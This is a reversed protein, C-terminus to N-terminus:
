DLAQQLLPRYHQALPHENGLLNLVAQMGVPAAGDLFGRDRRVIELLQALAAAYDDRTVALAALQFRAESDGPDRAIAAELDQPEPAAHASVIFRMHALLQAIEGEARLAPPLAALLDHAQRYRQQLMLMKAVDIPISLNEPSDLAAQAALSVAKDIDGVRYTEPTGIHLTDDSCAVHKDVFRRLAPESEAGRLTDIVQGHRFVKVMPLSDVGYDKALARYEDTNVMVLLFRGAYEGALRVLRPTLMFCPASKASWYNVLVPGKDSNELVLNRFTETTADLVYRSAATM